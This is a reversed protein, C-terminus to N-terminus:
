MPLEEVPRRVHDVFKGKSQSNLPRTLVPWVRWLDPILDETRLTRTAIHFAIFTILAGGDSVNNV